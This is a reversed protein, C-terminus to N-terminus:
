KGFYKWRRMDHDAEHQQRLLHKEVLNWEDKEEPPPEVMKKWAAESREEAQLRDFLFSVDKQNLAETRVRKKVTKNKAVRGKLVRRSRVAM